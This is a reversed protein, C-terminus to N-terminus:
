KEKKYTVKDKTREVEIQSERIRRAAEPSTRELEDAFDLTAKRVLNVHRYHKRLTEWIAHEAARTFYNFCRDKYQPKYNKINRVCKELAASVMDDQM